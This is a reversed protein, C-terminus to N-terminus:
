RRGLNGGLVDVRGIGLFSSFAERTSSRRIPARRPALRLSVQLAWLREANQGAPGM